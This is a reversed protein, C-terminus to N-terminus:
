LKSNIISEIEMLRNYKALREGRSLSGAKIYDAGVAVALDVIFDDNTEGSRHSVIIKYNHKKALKVCEVSETLTGVQNPKIIIANAAKYKLGLRLRGTNTTFLDDGVVMLDGGLERNLEQWGAWDDEFLGDELYAIPYKRLWEHYLGILTNATFANQDLRFIYKKTEKNYLESSGVDIGISFDKGPGYGAHIAAALILEIAQVSSIIDPAYGGENGVDTDYGTKKLVEGLKHFIEAGMRVMDAFKGKKIGRERSSRTPSPNPTPALPIVMFEQFDLNTDAHRGGNFINFCPVPLKYTKPTLQYTIAIYEYLERKKVKAGVRACALSVSLIANAGLKKKNATGDLKIMLQDIQEQKTTDMGQLSKFIKKNINEKAKLVGLGAYRNKDGDRLEVAEHSGTSAGSPASAKAALGNELIVKTEITPNGRSDLIERAIIKKIKSM